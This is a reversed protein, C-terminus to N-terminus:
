SYSFKKSRKSERVDKLIDEKVLNFFGLFFEITLGYPGSIKGKRFANITAFYEVEIMKEELIENMEDM